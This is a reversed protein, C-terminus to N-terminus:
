LAHGVQAPIFRPGTEDTAPLDTRTDDPQSAHYADANEEWAAQRHDENVAAALRANFDAILPTRPPPIEEVWPKRHKAERERHAEAIRLDQEARNTKEAQKGDDYGWLHGTYYGALLGALLGLGIGLLLALMIM